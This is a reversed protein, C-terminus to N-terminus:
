LVSTYRITPSVNRRFLGDWVAAELVLAMLINLLHHAARLLLRVARSVRLLKFVLNNDVLLSVICVRDFDVLDVAIHNNLVSLLTRLISFSRLNPM